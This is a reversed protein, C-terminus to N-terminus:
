DPKWALEVKSNEGSWGGNQSAIFSNGAGRSLMVMWECPDLHNCSYFMILWDNANGEGWCSVLLGSRRFKGSGDEGGSRGQGMREEQVGKEMVWGRRRFKGSGDEGGDERVESTRTLCIWRLRNTFICWRITRSLKLLVNAATQSSLMKTKIATGGDPQWHFLPMRRQSQKGSLELNECTINIDLFLMSIFYMLGWFHM